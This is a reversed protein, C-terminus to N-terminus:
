IVDWGCNTLFTGVLWSDCRDCVVEPGSQGSRVSVPGCIGVFLVSLTTQVTRVLESRTRTDHPSPIIELVTRSTLTM